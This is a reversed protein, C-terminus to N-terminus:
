NPQMMFMLINKIYFTETLKFDYVNNVHLDAKEIKDVSCKQTGASGFSDSFNKKHSKFSLCMDSNKCYIDM